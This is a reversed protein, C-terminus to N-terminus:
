GNFLVRMRTCNEQTVILNRNINKNKNQKKNKGPLYFRTLCMARLSIQAYNEKTSINTHRMLDPDGVTEKSIILCVNSLIRFAYEHREIRQHEKLRKRMVNELGSPRNKLDVRSIEKNKTKNIRFEEVLKGIHAVDSM